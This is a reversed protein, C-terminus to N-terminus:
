NEDKYRNLMLETLIQYTNYFFLSWGTLIFYTETQMWLTVCLAYSCLYYALALFRLASDNIM